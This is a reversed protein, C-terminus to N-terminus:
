PEVVMLIPGLDLISAALGKEVLLPLFLLDGSIEFRLPCSLNDLVGGYLALFM